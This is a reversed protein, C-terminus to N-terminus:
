YIISLSIIGSSVNPNVNSNTGVPYRTTNTNLTITGPTDTQTSTVRFIWYYTGDTIYIQYRWNPSIALPTNNLATCFSNNNYSTCNLKISTWANTPGNFEIGGTTTSTSNNYKFRVGYTEDTNNLEPAYGCQDCDLELLSFEITGYFGIIEGQPGLLGAACNLNDTRLQIVTTPDLITNPMRVLFNYTHTVNTGNISIRYDSLLNSPVIPTNPETWGISGNNLGLIISATRPGEVGNCVIPSAPNSDPKRCSGGTQVNVVFKLLYWKGINFGYIGNSLVNSVRGAYNRSSNCWNAGSWSVIPQQNTRVTLQSGGVNFIRDAEFIDNGRTMECLAVKNIYIKGTTVNNDKVQISFSTGGTCTIEEFVRYTGAGSPFIKDVYNTGLNIRVTCPSSSSSNINVFLVVRYLGEINLINDQSIPFSFTGTVGNSQASGGYSNSWIWQNNSQWGNLSLGFTGNTLINCKQPEPFRFLNTSTVASVCYSSSSNLNTVWGRGTTESITKGTLLDLWDKM